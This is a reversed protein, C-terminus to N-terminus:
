AANGPPPPPTLGDRIKQIASAVKDARSVTQGLAFRAKILDAETAPPLEARRYCPSGDHPHVTSYSMDESLVLTGPSCEGCACRAYADNAREVPGPDCDSDRDPRDRAPIPNPVRPDGTGTPWVGEPSGWRGTGKIGCAHLCRPCFKVTTSLNGMKVARHYSGALMVDRPPFGPLTPLGCATATSAGNTFTTLHVDPQDM